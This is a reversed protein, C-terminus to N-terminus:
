KKQNVKRSIKWFDSIAKWGIKFIKKPNISNVGGQRPKFTINIYTVSEHFKSFCAALVANPLNFDKPMLDLYKEVVSAKMLRFPANADPVWVHFFLWVYTRLVNEVMKRDKGDGRVPRCGMVCDYRSSAELFQAFEQPNTQGDSDTQFIFDAGHEIAYRYLYIVTPGHGQNPKTLPIFQPYKEKLGEMIEFTKDKSGDNAIVLRCDKGAKEVVPYWQQITEAINAEENYAPLVFYIKSM